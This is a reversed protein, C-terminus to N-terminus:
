ISYSPGGRTITASDPMLTKERFGHQFETFLNHQSFYATVSSAVIHEFLKVSSVHSLFPATTPPIQKPAKRTFLLLM